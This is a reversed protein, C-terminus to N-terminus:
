HPQEVEQGLSRTESGLQGLNFSMWSKDLCGNQGLKMVIQDYIHHCSWYCRKGVEIGLSKTKSGLHGQNSGTESKSNTQTEYLDLLSDPWKLM